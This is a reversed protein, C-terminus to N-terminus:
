EDHEERSHRGRIVDVLRWTRLSLLSDIWSDSENELLVAMATKLAISQNSLLYVVEELGPNHGLLMVTSADEPILGSAAMLGHYGALYLARLFEVPVEDTWVEQMRAFTERTRTADSSLVYEPQWEREVLLEAVRPAETRGRENLPRAHDSSAESDWSSKAHRMVILRRQM